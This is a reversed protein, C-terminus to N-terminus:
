DYTAGKKVPGVIEAIPTVLANRLSTKDPAYYPVFRDDHEYRVLFRPLAQRLNWCWGALRYQGGCHAGFLGYLLDAVRDKEDRTLSEKRM